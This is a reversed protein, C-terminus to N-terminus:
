PAVIIWRQADDGTFSELAVGNAPNIQFAAALARKGIRSAIRYSGDALEDIKWLQSEAGTFPSLIASSNTGAELATGDAVGLIKYFGSGAPAITWKQQDRILYRATQVPPGNTANVRSQLVTGTRQSRIQYIGERVNEGAVPWGDQTWLLPRIELFSRGRRALDGEYHLSFKEVGDDPLLGFHGPGVQTGASAIFYTGGGHSLDVGHRDLYPGTIKPARGVLITYSSNTGQCCSGHNVFLYFNGDHFIIDAAESQNAIAWVPSNTAIRLGTKPDLEVLDINGHYSGYAIWLRGDPALCVGPDIANLDEGESSHVVMGRDTWKYDPSNTNLTPNTLLGIASVFQGWSSIAYYLYYQGNLRIIDPAWVSVGDNKPCYQKVSDPVREFVRGAREWDFGNTSTLVSIGRGTGFVFYNGDCVAVTSPDHVGIQGDLAFSELTGSLFLILALLTKAHLLTTNMM